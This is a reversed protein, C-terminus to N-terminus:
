EYRMSAQQQFTLTQLMPLVIPFLTQFTVTANAQVQSGPQCPAACTVTVSSATLNAASLVTNIRAVGVNPNFPATVVATRAGERVATTVLNMTMWARSFEVIGLMILLLSPLVLIFELTSTGRQDRQRGLQAM